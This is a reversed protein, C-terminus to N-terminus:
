KGPLQGLRPPEEGGGIGWQGQTGGVVVERVRFIERELAGNVGGGPSDWKCRGEGQWAGDEYTGWSSRERQWALRNRGEDGHRSGRGLFPGM